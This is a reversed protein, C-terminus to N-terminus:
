TCVAGALMRGPRCCRSAKPAKPPAPGVVAVAAPLKVLLVVVMVLLSPPLVWGDRRRRSAEDAVM